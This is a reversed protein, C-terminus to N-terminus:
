MVFYFTFYKMNKFIRKMSAKIIYNIIRKEDASLNTSKASMIQHSINSSPMESNPIKFLDSFLQLYQQSIKQIKQPFLRKRLPFIHSDPSTLM